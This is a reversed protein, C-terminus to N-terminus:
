LTGSSHSFAPNKVDYLVSIIRGHLNRVHLNLYGNKIKKRGLLITM